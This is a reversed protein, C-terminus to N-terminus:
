GLVAVDEIEAPDGQILRQAREQVPEFEGALRLFNRANQLNERRAIVASVRVRHRVRVGRVDQRVGDDHEVSILVVRLHLALHGQVLEDAIVAAGVAPRIPRALCELVDEAADDFVLDFEGIVGCGRERGRSPGVHHTLRLAAAPPHHGDGLRLLRAQVVRIEEGDHPAGGDGGRGHHEIVGHVFGDEALREVPEEADRADRSVVAQRFHHIM